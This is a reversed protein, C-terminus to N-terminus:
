NAGKMRPRLRWSVALCSERTKSPLAMFYPFLGVINHGLAVFKSMCFLLLSFLHSFLLVVVLLCCWKPAVLKHGDHHRCLVREVSSAHSSLGGACQM